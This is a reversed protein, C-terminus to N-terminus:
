PSEKRCRKWEKKIAEYIEMKTMFEPGEVLLCSVSTFFEEYKDMREPYCVHCLVKYDTGCIRCKVM